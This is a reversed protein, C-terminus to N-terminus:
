FVDVSFARSLLIKCQTNDLVFCFCEGCSSVKLERSLRDSYLSRLAALFHTLAMFYPWVFGWSLYCHSSFLARNMLWNVNSIYSELVFTQKRLYNWYRCFISSYSHIHMLFRPDLDWNGQFALIVPLLILFSLLQHHHLLGKTSGQLPMYSLLSLFVFVLSVYLIKLNKLCRTSALWCLILCRSLAKETPYHM